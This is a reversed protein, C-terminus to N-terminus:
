RIGKSGPMRMLAGSRSRIQDALVTLVIVTGLVVQQLTDPVHVLILGATIVTITLAGAMAGVISGRGGSLSTGGIVVSAIADLEAGSAAITSAQGFMATIVIAAIAACAGSLLYALTKYSIVDVGSLRTAQENGGISIIYRGARFRALLFAGFVVVTVTIATLPLGHGLAMLRPSLASVSEGNTAYLTLGRAVSMMGLTVVFPPVNGTSVILGNVAGCASGILICVLAALELHVGGALGKALLLGIVGESIVFTTALLILKKSGFLASKRSIAGTIILAVPLGAIFALWTPVTGAMSLGLGVGALAAVSGVSLDIGATLVVFTMGVALIINRASQQFINPLYDRTFFTSRFLPSISFLAVVILLISFPKFLNSAQSSRKAGPNDSSGSM